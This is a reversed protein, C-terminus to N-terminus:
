GKSLFIILKLLARNKLSNNFKIQDDKYFLYNGDILARIRNRYKKESDYIHFLENKAIAKNDGILHVLSLVISNSIHIIFSFFSM